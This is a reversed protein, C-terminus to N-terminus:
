QQEAVTVSVRQLQAGGGFITARNIACESADRGDGLKIYGEGVTCDNTPDLGQWGDEALLEVWAHSEGEGPIFGCVYRAPIGALRMLCISIHAYDQCVGSGLRMAEEAATGASTSDKSYQFHEHLSHMIFCGQEYANKDSLGDRLRDFYAKVAEGPICKGAPYRYMATRSYHSHEEIVSSNTQVEGSIEFDFSSHPEPIHGYIMRNEYSDTGLSYSVPPLISLRYDLLSQRLTDKPICKITFFCRSVPETYNIRMRYDFSLLM